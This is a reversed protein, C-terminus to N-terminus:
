CSASCSTSWSSCSAVMDLSPWQCHGSLTSPSLSPGPPPSSIWLGPGGRQGRGPSPSLPRHSLLPPPWWETAPRARSGARRWGMMTVGCMVWRFYHCSQWTKHCISHKHPSIRQKHCQLSLGATGQKNHERSGLQTFWYNFSGPALTLTACSTFSAPRENTLWSVMEAESQDTALSLHILLCWGRTEAPKGQAQDSPGDHSYSAINESRTEARRDRSQWTYDPYKVTIWVWLVVSSSIKCDLLYLVIFVQWIIEAM